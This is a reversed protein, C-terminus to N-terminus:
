GTVAPLIFEALLRETQEHMGRTNYNVSTLVAVLGLSPFVAVKNGGNGSMLWAPHSGFSQLWWLYGYGVGPGVTAHERVSEAVWAAPIVQRGPWSGENLYLQGLKLLHQSTLELGGGTFALGAPNVAWQEGTIGLPGFLQERAYDQVPQGAAEALIAGLLGVGATCYRFERGAASAPPQAAQPRIPLDLAFQVWDSTEYMVEENGPSGQDFDDCELASSMTLLDAITIADKRPDPNAVPQRGGFFSMVPQQVGGILGQGIAIGTLMGAVTKTASRTNHRTDPTVGAAYFEHALEGGRAVLASTVKTFEGNGIAADMPKLATLEPM